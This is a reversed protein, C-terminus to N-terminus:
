AIRDHLIEEGDPGNHPQGADKFVLAALYDNITMGLEHARRQAADKIPIPVRGALVARPGKSPRGLKRSEM